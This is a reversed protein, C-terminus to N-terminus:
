DLEVRYDRTLEETPLGAGGSGPIGSHLADLVGYSPDESSRQAEVWPVGAMWDETIPWSISWEKIVAREKIKWHGNVRVFADIYRGGIQNIMEQESNHKDPARINTIFYTEAGAGDGRVSVLSQGLIHCCMNTHELGMMARRAYEPGSCKNAGHDDWSGEAYVGSMQVFDGRDCGRCYEKIVKTIEYHDLMEQLRVDM